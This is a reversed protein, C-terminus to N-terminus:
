RVGSVTQRAPRAKAREVVLSEKSSRFAAACYAEERAQQELIATQIRQRIRRILYFGLYFAGILGTLLAVILPIEVSAPVAGLVFHQNHM